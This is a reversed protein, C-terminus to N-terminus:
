NVQKLILKLLGYNRKYFLNCILKYKWDFQKIYKNKKWKPFYEHMISSVKKLAEKGEEFAFFRLSGAHLLHEVFLFEIEDHYTELVNREKFGHYLHLMSSFIEELNKNYKMQHMVSGDHMVYHYLPETLYSIRSTYLAYLPIIAIDEYSRYNPFFLRNEKIIETRILKRCPGSNNLIYSTISNEGKLEHNSLKIKNIGQIAYADCWVIDADNKKQLEIMKEFMSLDIYDDIDVFCIFKGEAQEIGLNRADAQGKNKQSFVKINSYSKEYKMLMKLTNDSSGDNVVIIDFDKYTQNILSTLCKDIYSQANYAPIIVSINPM